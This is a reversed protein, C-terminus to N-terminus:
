HASLDTVGQLYCKKKEDEPKDLKKLLGSAVDYVMGYVQLGRSAEAEYVYNIRELKRVQALVNLEVLRAAREEKDEIAHLDKENAARVDRVYRLWNDILGLKNTGLAANVGGCGYHGCVIIHQVQLVEVAFQVVCLMSMDGNAVVNAINRHVFVEGPLLDLVTTEPVRSDSCGIWLIKPAQSSSLSPFFDPAEKKVRESWAKNRDMLDEISADQSFYHNKGAEGLM